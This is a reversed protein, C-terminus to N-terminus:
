KTEGQIRVLKKLRARARFLRMVVVRRSTGLLKAIEENSQDHLYRLLIIQAADPELQAIAESLNLAQLDSDSDPAAAAEIREPRDVPVERRRARIRDLSLNIAARFLYAKPNRRVDPTMGRRLLRLFVTQPVDEADAPNRLISYATRYLMPYHERFLQELEQASGSVASVAWPSM